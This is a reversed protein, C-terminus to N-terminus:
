WAVSAGAAARHLPFVRQWEPKRSVHGHNQDPFSVAAVGRRGVAIMLGPDAEGGAARIAVHACRLAGDRALRTM